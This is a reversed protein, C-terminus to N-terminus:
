VRRIKLSSKSHPYNADYLKVHVKSLQPTRLGIKELPKGCTFLEHTLLDAINKELVKTKHTVELEVVFEKDVSLKLHGTFIKLFEPSTHLAGLVTDPYVLSGALNIAGDSRGAVFFFPFPLPLPLTVGNKSLISAMSDYSLVGGVDKLNYKMLPLLVDTDLTSFLLEQHENVSIHYHLPNYQFLMPLATMEGFIAAKLSSNKACLRRIIVTERSELAGTVGIDSAAFGSFIRSSTGLTSHMYGRWEESFGEGGTLVHVPITISSLLPALPTLFPPYGIVVIQEYYSAYLQAYKVVLNKDPGTNIVTCLHDSIRGVVVGGIWVSLSLSNIVLTKKSAVDFLFDLTFAAAYRGKELEERTKPWTCPDGSFGSSTVFLASSTLKAGYCLDSLSDASKIYDEKTLEPLLEYNLPLAYVLHKYHPVQEAMRRITSDLKRQAIVTLTSPSTSVIKKKLAITNKMSRKSAFELVSLPIFREIMSLHPNLGSYFDTTIRLYENFSVILFPHASECAHDIYEWFNISLPDIVNMRM